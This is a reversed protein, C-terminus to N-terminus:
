RIRLFVITLILGLFFLPLIYGGFLHALDM